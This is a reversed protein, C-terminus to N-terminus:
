PGDSMIESNAPVRSPSEDQLRISGSPSSNRRPASTTAPVLGLQALRREVADFHFEVIPKSHTLRHLRKGEGQLNLTRIQQEVAYLDQIVALIEAVADPEAQMADFVARRAHARCQAHM